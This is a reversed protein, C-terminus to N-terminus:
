IDWRMKEMNDYSLGAMYIVNSEFQSMMLEDLKAKIESLDADKNRLKGLTIHPRWTDFTNDGEDFNDLVTKFLLNADSSPTLEIVVLNGKGPPFLSVVPSDFKLQYGNEKAELLEKMKSDFAHLEEKNEQSFRHNMFLLTMHLRAFAHPKFGPDVQLIMKQIEVIQKRLEDPLRVALYNYSPM